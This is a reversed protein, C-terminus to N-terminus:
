YRYISLSTQREIKRQMGALMMRIGVSLKFQHDSKHLEDHGFLNTQLREFSLM